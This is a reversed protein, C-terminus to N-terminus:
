FKIETRLYVQRAANNNLPGTVQGFTTGNISPDFSWVVGQANAPGWVPHNLVNTATLHLRLSARGPLDVDKALSADLNWIATGRLIIREGLVGPETPVQLYQPNARGDPGIFKPDIWYRALGPGPFVGIAKQLDEVTTGNVLIVGADYQNFTARGSTLRFPRGSTATIIGGVTWGGVIADLVPNGLSWRRNKGFPLDYSGYANLGHLVDYHATTLDMSKDRLTRYNIAQISDEGWIDGKSRSLTYNATLQLGQSYRKRVTLQLSHYRTKSEDDVLWAGQTGAYPNALFFNIPYPGPANYGLRTCPAFANGFLRCVYNANGALSQALSGAVGQELNTIFAGNTFGQAAPLAAQSGRSGFASEFIPLAVQGPLGRNQFSATNDIARNIALNNQARKFEDVFGNEFVNVENINYTRWIKEGRTGLYRAEIVTGKAIQRQLGINWSHVYPTELDDKMTRFNNSFTFDSQPFVDQYREPFAVFPPLPSQLTLQGPQFGIGPQLRLVQGYGPNSGANFAFMNTGEDYFTLSYNGRVVTDNGAGLIRSLWGGTLNPTWAFGVNPALNMYDIGAAYKGRRIVPQQVGDLRGPQFLGSSPGYLNALDPFNANALKSHPAGTIEYRLGYNLTFEPNMRWQDQAYVGGMKSATWNERYVNDSYELTEPDLIRGTVVDSVRGTLLAYLARANGLDANQIGSMSTASFIGSAPDGTPMNLTYRPLGLFGGSGPGDFSTDRWDSLRFTGGVTWKHDGRVLTLTDYVTTIYHRGTIPVGDNAITALGLPLTYRAPLGNIVGNYQEFFRREGRRPTTDGSHQIGYRFENHTNSNVQWNLGTSTIWWSSLFTDLQQPLGPLPWGRRGTANARRLNWSGTWALKSNIQYDLRATPFNRIEKQPERWSLEETILSNTSNLTGHQSAERHQALLRQVNPDIGSPFGAARAIDLVNAMRVEGTTTQYTFTGLDVGPQLVTRTRTQTQPIYDQEYNLFLHLKDRLRTGPLLPGGFNMGFDHRRLENKPLNRANNNFTNANFSENRHLWFGSGRYQNTGRRTVFKLNVGGMAGSESGQGSTEVTVEEIAGLRADVTGFFSTGGSKWGNSSNNVGDITPNIVGGPMGNFHTAGGGVANVGPMLAALGFLNRGALPIDELTKRNMTSSILNSSTELVPSAGEVTIIEELSGVSMRVRVDTTRGAEVVVKSIAATQFGSLKVSLHYSGHNLDPFTFFGSENTTTEKTVGTGEDKLLVTAGPMVAESADTVTGSIAGTIRVQASTSAAIAFLAACALLSIRVNSM